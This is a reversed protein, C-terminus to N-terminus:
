NNKRRGIPNKEWFPFDLNPPSFFQTKEIRKKVHNARIDSLWYFIMDGMPNIFSMVSSLSSSSSKFGTFNYSGNFHYFLHLSLKLILIRSKGLVTKKLEKIEKKLKTKKNKWKRTKRAFRIGDIILSGFGIATTIIRWLALGADNIFIIVGAFKLKLSRKEGLVLKSNTNLFVKSM